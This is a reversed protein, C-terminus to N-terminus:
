AGEAQISKLVSQLGTKQSELQEALLKGRSYEAKSVNAAAKFEEAALTARAKRLYEAGEASLFAKAYETDYKLADASAQVELDRVRDPAQQLKRIVGVIEQRIEDPTM